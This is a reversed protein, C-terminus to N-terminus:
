IKLSGKVVHKELKFLSDQVKFLIGEYSGLTSIVDGKPTKFDEAELRIFRHLPILAKEESWNDYGQKKNEEKAM